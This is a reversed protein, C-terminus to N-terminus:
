LDEVKVFQQSWKLVITVIVVVLVVQALHAQVQHHALHLVQLLHWSEAVLLAQLLVMVEQVATIFIKM